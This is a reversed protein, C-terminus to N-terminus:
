INLHVAKGQDNQKCEKLVQSTNGRKKIFSDFM